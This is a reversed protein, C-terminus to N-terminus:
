IFAFHGCILTHIKCIQNKLRVRALIMIESQNFHYSNVFANITFYYGIINRKEISLWFRNVLFRSKDKYFKVFFNQLREM